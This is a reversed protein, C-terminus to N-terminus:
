VLSNILIKIISYIGQQIIIMGQYKLLNKMCKKNIKLGPHDFVPKNDILANFDEIEVSPM